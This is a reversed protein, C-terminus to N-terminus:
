YRRSNYPIMPFETHGEKKFSPDSSIIDISGNLDRKHPPSPLCCGYLRWLRLMNIMNKKQYNTLVNKSVPAISTLNKYSSLLDVDAPM